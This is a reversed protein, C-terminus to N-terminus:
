NGTPKSRISIVSPAKASSQITRWCNILSKFAIPMSTNISSKPVPYEESLMNFFKLAFAKFISLDNTSSILQNIAEAQDLTIKSNLVAYKTFEGPNALRAGEEQCRKLIMSASMTGGHCQIEVIDEGNFSNPAKFYLVIATDIPDSSIDYINSLNATRPNISTKKTLKKAIELANVGCLRVISIAGEKSASAIACITEDLM